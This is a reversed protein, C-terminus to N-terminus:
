DIFNSDVFLRNGKVPQLEFIWGDAKLVPQFSVEMYASAYKSGKVSIGQSVKTITGDSSVFPPPDELLVVKHEQEMYALAKRFKDIALSKIKETNKRDFDEVISYMLEQENPNTIWSIDALYVIKM